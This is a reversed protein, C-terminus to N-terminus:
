RQMLEADIISRAIERFGIEITEQASAFKESHSALRSIAPSQHEYTRGWWLKSWISNNRKADAQVVVHFQMDEGPIGTTQRLQLTLTDGTVATPKRERYRAITVTGLDVIEHPSRLRAQEILVHHFKNALSGESPLDPILADIERLADEKPGHVGGQAAGTIGGIVAGTGACAAYAPPLVLLLACFYLSIGAGAVTGAV